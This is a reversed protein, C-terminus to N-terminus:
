LQDDLNMSGHLVRVILVEAEDIMYVILHKRFIGLRVPPDFSDNLSHMEPNDAIQMFRDQMDELYIRRQDKGWTKQTYQGIKKIDAKAADTVRFTGM